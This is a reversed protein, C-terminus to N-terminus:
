RVMMENMKAIVSTRYNVGMKKFINDIHSKVTHVSILLKDAIAKNSLGAFILDIIEHERKVFHYINTFNKPANLKKFINNNFIHVIYYKQLM